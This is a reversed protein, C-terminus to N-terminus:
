QFSYIKSLEILRGAFPAAMDEPLHSAIAEPSSNASWILPLNHDHRHNVIAFLEEAVAPTPRAKGLDDILLLDCKRMSELRWRAKDQSSRDWLDRPGTDKTFQAMVTDKIAQSTTFIFSARRSKAAIEMAISEALLYGIRSKGGGTAGLLGLWPKESTPRWDRIKDWAKRNFTPHGIDTAQFRPPIMATIKAKTAAMQQDREHALRNAEAEDDAIKQCPDCKEPRWRDLRDQTEILPDPQWDFTSGCQCQIRETPFKSSETFNSM